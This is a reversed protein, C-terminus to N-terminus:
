TKQVLYIRTLKCYAIRWGDDLKRYREEYHGFGHLYFSPADRKSWINDEMAWIGEAENDNKIDIEPTHGHHATINEGMGQRALELLVEHGTYVNAGPLDENQPPSDASLGQYSYRLDLVGDPTFVDVWGEPNQSDVMRFYRAKLQKIEEIALLRNLIDM